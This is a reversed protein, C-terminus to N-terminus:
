LAHEPAAPERRVVVGNELTWERPSYRAVVEVRVRSCKEVDECYRLYSAPALYPLSRGEPVKAEVYVARESLAEMASAMEEFDDDDLQFRSELLQDRWVDQLVLVDEGHELCWAEVEAAERASEWLPPVSSFWYLASSRLPPIEVGLLSTMSGGDRREM